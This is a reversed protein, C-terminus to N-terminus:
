ANSQVTDHRGPEISHNTVSFWRSPRPDSFRETNDESCDLVSIGAWFRAPIVLQPLGSYQDLM